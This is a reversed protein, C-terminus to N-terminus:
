PLHRALAEPDEEHLLHGLGPLLRAEARPLSGALDSAVSPPVALDNAGALITVECAVEGLRRRLPALSWSAMMRLTGSVHARNAFLRGYHRLQDAPIVSGTGEIVRRAAGPTAMRAVIPATLPNFALGKAVLPFVLGALGPFDALAPNVLVLRAPPVPLTLALQLALAGGASHGVILEPAAGEAALLTALDGAMPVLGLRAFPGTRTFGHGPLDPALTRHTRSLAPLAWRWSHSAGGAGHLLLAAPGEGADQLHFRHGAAQAERSARRNPWDAPLGPPASM